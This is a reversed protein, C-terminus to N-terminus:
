VSLGSVQRSGSLPIEVCKPCRVSVGARAHHGSHAEGFSLHECLPCGLWAGAGRSLSGDGPFSAFESQNKPWM